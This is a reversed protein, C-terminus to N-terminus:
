DFHIFQCLIFVLSTGLHWFVTAMLKSEKVDEVRIDGLAIKINEGMAIMVNEWFRIVNAKGKCPSYFLYDQYECDDSILQQLDEINKTNFAHYFDKVLNQIPSPPLSDPSEGAWVKWKESPNKWSEIKPRNQGVLALPFLTAKGIQHKDVLNTFCTSKKKKKNLQAICPRTEMMKMRSANCPGLTASIKPLSAM